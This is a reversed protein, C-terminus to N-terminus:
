QYGGGYNYAFNVTVYVDNTSSGEYDWSINVNDYDLIQNEDLPYLMEM